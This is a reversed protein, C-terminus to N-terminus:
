LWDTHPKGSKEDSETRTEGWVVRSDLETKGFKLIEM